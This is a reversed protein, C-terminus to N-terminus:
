GQRWSFSKMPLILMGSKGTNGMSFVLLIPLSFSRFLGFLLRRVISLIIYLGVLTSPLIDFHMQCVFGAFIYPGPLGPVTLNWRVRDSLRMTERVTGEEM